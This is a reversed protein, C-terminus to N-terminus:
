WNLTIKLPEEIRVQLYDRSDWTNVCKRRCLKLKFHLKVYAMRFCEDMWENVASSWGVIVIHDGSQRRDIWSFKYIERVNVWESWRGKSLRLTCFVPSNWKLSKAEQGKTKTKESECYYYHVPVPRSPQADDTTTLFRDSLSERDCSFCKNKVSIVLVSGSNKVIEGTGHVIWHVFM